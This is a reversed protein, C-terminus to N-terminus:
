KLRAFVKPKPTLRGFILGLIQNYSSALEDFINCIGQNYTKDNLLPILTEIANKLEEFMARNINEDLLDSMEFKKTTFKCVLEDFINLDLIAERGYAMYWTEALRDIDDSNFTDAIRDFLEHDSGFTNSNCQWHYRKSSSHIAQIRAMIEIMNNMM